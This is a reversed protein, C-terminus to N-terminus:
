NRAHRLMVNGAPYNRAEVVEQRATTKDERDRKSRARSLPTLEELDNGQPNELLRTKSRAGHGPQRRSAALLERLARLDRHELQPGGSLKELVCQSKLASPQAYPSIEPQILGEGEARRGLWDM